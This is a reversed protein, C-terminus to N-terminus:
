FSLDILYFEKIYFEVNDWESMTAITRPINKEKLFDLFEVAGPALKFNEKDLLCRERYVAEKEKGYKEVMEDADLELFKAYTRLFCVGYALGPFVYYHGQELADLYMEKICLKKAIQAVSLKKKERARRLTGGLSTDVNGESKTKKTGTEKSLTELDLHVLTEKKKRPM